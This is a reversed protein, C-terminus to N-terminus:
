ERNVCNRRWRLSSNPPPSHNMWSSSDSSSRHLLSRRLTKNLFSRCVKKAASIARRTSSRKGAAITNIVISVSSKAVFRGAPLAGRLNRIDTETYHGEGLCFLEMIERAYNENPHSKRNTASDLYVLMAPDRSIELLLKSFDGFAFSRLLENQTPMLQGDTVKEASTAFHGHWFLTTKELLQMPTSLMRYAWWASVQQVNGTALAANALSKMEALFADPEPGALLEDVVASPSKTLAVSLESQTAGFGARRFLHAATRLNWPTETDPQFESWAWETDITFNLDADKEAPMGRIEFPM